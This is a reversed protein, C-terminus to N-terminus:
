RKEEKSKVLFSAPFIRPMPTDDLRMDGFNYLRWAKM